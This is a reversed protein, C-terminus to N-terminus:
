LHCNDRGNHKARYLAEDSRKLLDTYDEGDDPFIALGISITINLTNDSLNIPKRLVEMIKQAIKTAEDKQQLDGLLLVFEDGGIRAVTDTKRLVSTMREGVAILLKDGIDHGLTDNVNKFRDLDLSLIALKNNKRQANARAVIFRDHLLVRNPLGTLADHTSLEQLKTNLQERMEDNIKRETIDLGIGLLYIENGIMARAGTIFYPIKNGSKTLLNAEVSSYGADSALEITNAVAKRDEEAFFSLVNKNILEEASYETVRQFNINWRL